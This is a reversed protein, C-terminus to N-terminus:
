FDAHLEHGDGGDLYVPTTVLACMTTTSGHDMANCASLPHLDDHINKGAASPSIVQQHEAPFSRHFSGYLGDLQHNGKLPGFGLNMGVRERSRAGSLDALAKSEHEM